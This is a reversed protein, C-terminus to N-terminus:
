DWLIRKLTFAKECTGDTLDLRHVTNGNKLYICDDSEVYIKTQDDIDAYVQECTGDTLDVRYVGNEPSPVADSTNRREEYVLLFVADEGAVMEHIDKPVSYSTVTGDTLSFSWFIRSSLFRLLVHDSAFSYTSYSGERDPSFTGLQESQGTVPDVRHIEYGAGSVVCRVEGDVLGFVEIGEMVVRDEGTKLDLIRLLQNEWDERDQYVVLNGLVGMYRPWAIPYLAETTDTRLDCRYLMSCEEDSMVFYLESGSVIFNTLHGPFDSEEFLKEPKRGRNRYVGMNYFGDLEYFCGEDFFYFDPRLPITNNFNVPGYGEPPMPNEAAACASLTIILCVSLLMIRFGKM